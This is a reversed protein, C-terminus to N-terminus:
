KSEPQSWSHGKGHLNAQFVQRHVRDRNSRRPAATSMETAHEEAPVNVTNTQQSNTTHSQVTPEASASAVPPISSPAEERPRLERNPVSNDESAEVANTPLIRNINGTARPIKYNDSCVPLIERLFRRNRRTVRGSGDMRVMYQRHPLSEVVVGTKDWRKPRNGTQNQVSVHTRVQLPELERVHEDYKEATIIHRRRLAKERDDLTKEWEPRIQLNDPLKPLFDKLTRGFLIQAPSSGVDQLPTNRHQLLARAVNDNNLSGNPGCNTLLIRKAVKVALEARGNSQPYAVSSLRPKVGWISLFDHFSKANFPSGGDFGFEDPAGFTTFLDRVFNELFFADRDNKGIKIISIWGSYRDAYLLYYYAKLEFYDAVVQQFPYEPEDSIIIPEKSQSPAGANCDHCRMRVNRVDNDCGPWYMCMGVRARMGTVGQHASHLHELVESRLCRPIVIRNNYIPVNDFVSLDERVGWYPQLNPSLGSKTEPFGNIIVNCLERSVADSSAVENVRALTLVKPDIGANSLSAQLSAELGLYCNRSFEVECASPPKRIKDLAIRIANATSPYRSLADAAFNINGRIHKVIFNFKAANEKVRFVRQNQISELPKDNFIKVLPQHDVVALFQKCGLLFMKCKELAYGLALAEGEIPAYRSEAPSTFRSGAFITKWGTPCCVPASSLDCSCHKQLLVFGIGDKSWDSCVCIQRDLSFNKIGDSIEQVLAKKTDEFISDLQEDRYFQKSKGQLVERFPQLRNTNALTYSAQNVLGFFSRVDTLNKPCPFSAISNTLEDTPQIGEKTLKFGAFEVEDRAFHFKKQNFIIGNKSCHELYDVLHWFSQEITPKYHCTDDIVKVKDPIHKDIDDYAKTFGDGSGHFGQPASLYRYRGWKSIFIAANSSTPSLKLSHYGEWADLTTKKM